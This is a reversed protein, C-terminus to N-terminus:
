NIAHVKLPGNLAQWRTVADNEYQVIYFSVLVVLNGFHHTAGDAVALRLQVLRAHLQAVQQFEASGFLGDAALAPQAATTIATAWVPLAASGHTPLPHSSMFQWCNWSTRGYMM